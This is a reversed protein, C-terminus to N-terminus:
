EEQLQRATGADPGITKPNERPCTWNENPSPVIRELFLTPISLFVSPICVKAAILPMTGRANLGILIETRLAQQM